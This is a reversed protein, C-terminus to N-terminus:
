KLILLFEGFKSNSKRRRSNMEIKSNDKKDHLEEYKAEVKQREALAFM